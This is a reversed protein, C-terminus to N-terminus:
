PSLVAQAGDHSLERRLHVNDLYMRESHPLNAAFLQLRKIHALDLRRGIPAEAVMELNIRVRQGGPKLVIEGNYRDFYEGNTAQDEIKVTLPLPSESRVNVDFVLERYASWDRWPDDLTVGTYWGRQLDVRLSWAGESAFENVRYCRSNNSSFRTLESWSEFSALMPLEYPQFVIDVLSLAAWTNPLLFLAASLGWVAARVIIRLPRRRVATKGAFIWLWGAAVGACNSYIDHWAFTRGVQQQIFEAALGVVLLIEGILGALALSSWSVRPRLTRFALWTLGAFVPAHSLDMISRSVRGSFPLPVILIIGVLCFLM